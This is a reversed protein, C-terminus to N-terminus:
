EPVELALRQVEELQRTLRVEAARLRLVANLREVSGVTYVSALQDIVRGLLEVQFTLERIRNHMQNPLSEWTLEEPRPTCKATTPPRRPLYDPGWGSQTDRSQEEAPRSNQPNSLERKPNSEM